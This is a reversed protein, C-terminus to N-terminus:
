LRECNLTYRCIVIAVNFQRCLLLVEPLASSWFQAAVARSLALQLDSLLISGPNPIMNSHAFIDPNLGLEAM